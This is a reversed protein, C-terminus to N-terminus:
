PQFDVIVARHDSGALRRVGVSRLAIGDSVWVQDVRSLPLLAPVTPGWGRGAALWGDTLFSGIPELSPLDAPANFDGAVIVSDARVHAATQRVLRALREYQGTRARYNEVPNEGFPDLLQIIVSPLMLRVNAILVRRSRINVLLLQPETWPGVKHTPLIEAPYRTLTGPDLTGYWEFGNWLAQPKISEQVLVIDPQHERITELWNLNGSGINWSILRVTDDNRPLERAPRPWETTLLLFAILAAAVPWRRLRITRPLLLVVWVLPPAVSIWAGWITRDGVGYALALVLLIAYLVIEQPQKSRLVNELVQRMSILNSGSVQM